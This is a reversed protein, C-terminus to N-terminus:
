RPTRVSTVVAAFILVPAAVAWGRIDRAHASVGAHIALTQLVLLGASQTLGLVALGAAFRRWGVVAFAAAVWLALYLAVQFAPLFALAGQPDDLATVGASVVRTYAPGLLYVFLVGAVGGAAAHAIATGGGHRWRAAVVIVVAGLLLQYFAHVLFLPSSLVGPLAVVLLRAIGLAIFIPAAAVVGVIL